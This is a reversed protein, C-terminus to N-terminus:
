IQEGKVLRTAEDPTLLGEKVEENVEAILMPDEHCGCTSDHPCFRQGPKHLPDDEMPIMPHFNDFPSPYYHNASV